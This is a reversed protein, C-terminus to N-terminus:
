PFYCEVRRAGSLFAYYNKFDPLVSLDQLSASLAFIAKGDRLFRVEDNEYVIEDFFFGCREVLEEDEYINIIVQRHSLNLLPHKSRM